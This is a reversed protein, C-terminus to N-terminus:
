GDQREARLSDLILMGAGVCIAVDAVNFAPWHWTRYYLDIFDVVAGRALRDILNGIAGGVILALAIATFRAKAPLRALWVALAASVGIAIAIFLWRQWGGADGLLSFAAGRNFTLMLNFSPAVPVPRRPVLAELALLKTAQDALIVFASLWLWRLARPERAAREGRGSAGKAQTRKVQRRKM